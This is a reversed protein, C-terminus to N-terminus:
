KAAKEVGKFVIAVVQHLMKEAEEWQDRDFHYETGLVNEPYHGKRVIRIFPNNLDRGSLLVTVIDAKRIYEVHELKDETETYTIKVASGYEEVKLDKVHAM